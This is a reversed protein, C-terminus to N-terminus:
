MSDADTITVTTEPQLIVARPINSSTLQVTFTEEPEPIQDDIITINVCEPVLGAAFTFDNSVSSFDMDRTATLPFSSVRTYLGVSAKMMTIEGSDNGLTTTIFAVEPYIEASGVAVACVTVGQAGDEAM